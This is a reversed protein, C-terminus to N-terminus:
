KKKYSGILKGSYVLTAALALEIFVAFWRNSGGEIQYILAFTSVLLSALAIVGAGYAIKKTYEDNSDEVSKRCRLTAKIQLEHLKAIQAPTEASNIAALEDLLDQDEKLYLNNM